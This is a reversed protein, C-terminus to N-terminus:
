ASGIRAVLDEVVDADLLMRAQEVAERIRTLTADVVGSISDLEQAEQPRILLDHKVREKIERQLEPFGSYDLM